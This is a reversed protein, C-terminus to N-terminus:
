ADCAVHPWMCFTNCGPSCVAVGAGQVEYLLMNSKGRGDVGRRDNEDANSETQRM